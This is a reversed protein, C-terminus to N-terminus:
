INFIEQKFEIILEEKIYCSTEDSLLKKLLQKLKEDSIKNKFYARGLVGLIGTYKIGLKECAKRVPIDNSGCYYMNEKAISIAFKDFRSLKKYETDTIM